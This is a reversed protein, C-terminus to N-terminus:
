DSHCMRSKKIFIGDMQLLYGTKPDKFGRDLWVPYFGLATLNCLMEPMLTQNAYLEVLSLEMEVAEIQAMTEVAGVLVQKEFGQVDVKMYVRDSPALIISRLSDLRTVRINERRTIATAQEASTSAGTVELLSSSVFNHSVNIATQAEDDGLALNYCSWQPDGATAERLQEFIELIPEFSIIKGRFGNRRLERAYNGVNGGIDLVVNISLAELVRQRKVELTNESRTIHLGLRKGGAQILATVRRSVKMHETRM